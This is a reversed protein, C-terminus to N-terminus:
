HSTDLIHRRSRGEVKKKKGPCERSREEVKKKGPYERGKTELTRIYNFISEESCSKTKFSLKTIENKFTWLVMETTKKCGYLQLGSFEAVWKRNEPNKGGRVPSDILSNLRHSVVKPFAIIKTRWSEPDDLSQGSEAEEWM